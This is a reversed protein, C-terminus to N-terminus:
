LPIITKRHSSKKVMNLIGQILEELILYSIDPM